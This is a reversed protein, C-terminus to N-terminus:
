KFRQIKMEATGAVINCNRSWKLQLCNECNILPM